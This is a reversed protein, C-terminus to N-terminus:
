VLRFTAKQSGFGDGLKSGKRIFTTLSIYSSHGKDRTGRLMTTPNQIILVLYPISKVAPPVVHSNGVLVCFKSTIDRQMASTTNQSIQRLSRQHSMAHNVVYSAVDAVFVPGCHGRGGLCSRREQIFFFSYIPWSPSRISFRNFSCLAM